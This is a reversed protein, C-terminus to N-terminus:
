DRDHAGSQRCGTIDLMQNNSSSSSQLAAAASGVQQILRVDDTMGTDNTVDEMDARM